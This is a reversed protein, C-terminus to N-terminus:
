PLKIFLRHTNAHQQEPSRLVKVCKTPKKFSLRMGHLLLRVWWKGPRVDLGEAYLWDHVLVRITIASLM